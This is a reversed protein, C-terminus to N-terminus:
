ENAFAQEYEHSIIDAASRALKWEYTQEVDSSDYAPNTHALRTWAAARLNAIEKWRPDAMMESWQELKM